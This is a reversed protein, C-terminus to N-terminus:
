HRLSRLAGRGRATPARGTAAGDRALRGSRHSAGHGPRPRRARTQVAGRHPDDCTALRPRALRCGPADADRCQRARRDPPEPPARLHARGPRHGVPPASWARSMGTRTREWQEKPNDGEVQYAPHRLPRERMQEMWFIFDSNVDRYAEFLARKVSEDKVVIFEWPQSNAGSMALRGAEVVKTVCDDPIPDPKLRRVSMRETMIRHLHEYDALPNDQTTMPGERATRDINRLHDSM